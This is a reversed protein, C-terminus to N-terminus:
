MPNSRCNRPKEALPSSISRLDAKGRRCLYVIEVRSILYNRSEDRCCILNGRSIIWAEGRYQNLSNEEVFVPFFPRFSPRPSPSPLQFVCRVSFVGRRARSLLYFYILKNVLRDNIISLYDYNKRLRYPRLEPAPRRTAGYMPSFAPPILGQASNGCWKRLIYRRWVYFEVSASHSGRPFFILFESSYCTANKPTQFRLSIKWQFQHNLKFFFEDLVLKSM